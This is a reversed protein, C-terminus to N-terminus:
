KNDEDFLIYKHLNEIRSRYPKFGLEKIEKIDAVSHKVDGRRPSVYNLPIDYGFKNKFILYMENLSMSTGTGLNYIKGTTEENDLVILIGRILDDIYIFDRTQHGDGFIKFETKNIFSRKLISLVGSYDSYPNQLPGYVNFFRLSVTPLNYLDHYLKMYQESTFKQIAYPSRIDIKSELSKPLQDNRGYVAASSAFIIKKINNSYLRISELLNITANVNVEHSKLPNDVTEVVSVVAALHIVYDFDYTKILQEVFQKDEFNEIFIQEKPLFSINSLKGTSLNDLVYVKNGIGSLKKTLHSGIFGAGGTILVKM